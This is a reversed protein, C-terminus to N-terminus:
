CLNELCKHALKQISMLKRILQTGLLTTAQNHPLVINQTILFQQYWVTKQLLQVM